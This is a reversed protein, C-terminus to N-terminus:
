HDRRALWWRWYLWGHVLALVAVVSLRLAPGPTEPYILPALYHTIFGGEYGPEGAALRLRQELPTLPCTWRMVVVLVGWALAPVHLFAVWPWRRVLLVGFVVFVVFAGHVLMLADALLGYMLQM